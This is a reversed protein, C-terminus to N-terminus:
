EREPRPSLQGILWAAMGGLVLARVAALATRALLWRTSPYPQDMILPAFDGVIFLLLVFVVTIQVWRGRLVLAIPVLPLFLALARLGYLALLAAGRAVTTVARDEGIGNAAFGGVEFGRGTIQIWLNPSVLPTFGRPNPGAALSDLWGTILWLAVAASSLLSLRLLWFAPPWRRLRARLNALGIEGGHPRFLLAMM